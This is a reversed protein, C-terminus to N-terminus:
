KSRVRYEMDIPAYTNLAAQAEERNFFAKNLGENNSRKWEDVCKFEIIWRKAHQKAM